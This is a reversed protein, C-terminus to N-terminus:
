FGAFCLNGHLFYIQFLGLEVGILSLTVVADHVRIKGMKIWVGLSTICTYGAEGCRAPPQSIDPFYSFDWRHFFVSSPLTIESPVPLHTLNPLKKHRITDGM